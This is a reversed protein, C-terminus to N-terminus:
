IAKISMLEVHRAAHCVPCLWMIDLPKSHDDHHAHPKCPLSCRQCRNPRILEGSKIARSVVNHARMYFKSAKRKRRQKLIFQTKRKETKNRSRDYARVRSPDDLRLQKMASKHCSKCRGLYGDSM